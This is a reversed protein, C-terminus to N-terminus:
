IRHQAPPQGALAEQIERHRFQVVIGAMRMLGSAYAWDMFQAPRLPLKRRRTLLRTSVFYRLWPSDADFVGAILFGVAVGFTVQFYIYYSLHNSDIYSKGEVCHTALCPSYLSTLFNSPALGLGLGLLLGVGLCFGIRIVLDYTRGQTVLESPKRIATPQRRLGAWAWLALGSAVGLALKGKFGFIFPAGFIPQVAFGFVVGLALSTVLRLRSRATRYQSM